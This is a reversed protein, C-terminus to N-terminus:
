CRLLRHIIRQRFRNVLDRVIIITVASLFVSDHVAAARARQQPRAIERVTMVARHSRSLFANKKKEVATNRTVLSEADCKSPPSPQDPAMLYLSPHNASRM